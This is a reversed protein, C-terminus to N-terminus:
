CKVPNRPRLGLGHHKQPTNRPRLGLDFHKQPHKPDSRGSWPTKSPTRPQLGLGLHKQPPNQASPGTWPTKSHTELGFAWVLTNKLPTELGLAWTLTNKLTNIPRLSPIQAQHTCMSPTPRPGFLGGYWVKM